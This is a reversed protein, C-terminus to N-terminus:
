FFDKFEDLAEISAEVVKKKNDVMINIIFLYAFVEKRKRILKGLTGGYIMTLKGEETIGQLVMKNSKRGITMHNREHDFKTTNHQKMWYDGM